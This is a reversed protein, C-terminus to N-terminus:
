WSAGTLGELEQWLERRQPASYVPPLAQSKRREVFYEGSVGEVDDATLLHHTATASAVPRGGLWWGARLMKTDVTGPDLSCFTLAPPSAHREHAEKAVMAMALKSLSYARHATWGSSLQLDGLADAAGQSLSSTFLVRARTSRRLAPLLLSTLLFPACVNVALSYEWGDATEVRRGSYDGDFTGANNALGDLVPFRELVEAALGRVDALRSLDARVGHLEAGPHARQLERLTTALRDPSRGHVVVRHGDRALLGATVRGIGDTSGTVLITRATAEGTAATALLWALMM